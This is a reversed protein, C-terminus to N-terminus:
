RATRARGAVLYDKLALETSWFALDGWPIDDHAFAAVETAEPTTQPPQTTQGAYVILIIRDNRRSYVNVLHEITVEIALEEMAERMAAQEVSEGLDVFGGPFTWRGKGPEFGRRLLVVEGTATAPIV